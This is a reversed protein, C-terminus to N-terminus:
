QGIVLLKSCIQYICWMFGYIIIYGFSYPYLLWTRLESQWRRSSRYGHIIDNFSDWDGLVRSVFGYVEPTSRNFILILIIRNNWDITAHSQNRRLFDRVSNQLKCAYSLVGIALHIFTRLIKHNQILKLLHSMENKSTSRTIPNMELINESLVPRNGIFM